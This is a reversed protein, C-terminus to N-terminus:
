VWSLLDLTSHVLDPVQVFLTDSIYAFVASDKLYMDFVADRTDCRVWIPRQIDRVFVGWWRCLAGYGVTVSYCFDALVCSPLASDWELPEGATKNQRVASEVARASKLFRQFGFSGFM